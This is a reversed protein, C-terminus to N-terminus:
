TSEFFNGNKSSFCINILFSYLMFDIISTHCDHDITQLWRKALEDLGQGYLEKPKSDIFKQVGTRIDEVNKFHRGRHFHVM